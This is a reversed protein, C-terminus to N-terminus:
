LLRCQLYLEKVARDSAFRHLHKANRHKRMKKTGTADAKRQSSAAPLAGSTHADFGLSVFTHNGAASFWCQREFTLVPRNKPV